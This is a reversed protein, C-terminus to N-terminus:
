QWCDFNKNKVDVIIWESKNLELNATIIEASLSRSCRSLYLLHSSSFPSNSSLTTQQVDRSNPSSDLDIVDHPNSVLSM